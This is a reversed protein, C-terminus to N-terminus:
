DAAPGVIRIGDGGTHDNCGQCTDRTWTVNGGPQLTHSDEASLSLQGIKNFGFTNFAWSSGNWYTAPRGQFVTGLTTEVTFNWRGNAYNYWKISYVDATGTGALNGRTTGLYDPDLYPALDGEVAEEHIGTMAAVGSNVLLRPAKWGHTVGIHCNVCQASGDGTDQHHSSHANNSSGIGTTSNTPNPLNAATTGSTTGSAYNQLDHCKSCIVTMGSTYTAATTLDSRLRIGSPYLDVRKTLEALTYDAPYNDDMAWRATAGHPGRAGLTNSGSHCDNCGIVSDKNLNKMAHDTAQTSNRSWFVNVTPFDWQSQVADGESDLLTVGQSGDFRTKVGTNTEGLVNHQSAQGSGFEANVDTATYTTDDSRTITGATHCGPTSCSLIGTTQVHCDTCQDFDASHHASTLMSPNHPDTVTDLQTHCVKCDAVSWSSGGAPLTVGAAHCDACGPKDAFIGGNHINAVNLGHCGPSACSGLFAATHADQVTHDAPVAPAIVGPVLTNDTAIHCAACDATLPVGDTHCAFCKKVGGVIHIDYVNSAHCEAANGTACTNQATHASRTRHTTASHCQTTCNTTLTVADNHCVLCGKISPTVDSQAAAHTEVVSLGHCDSNSDAIACGNATPDVTHSTADSAHNDSSGPLGDHCVVDFCGEATAPLVLNPMDDNGHCDTCAGHIVSVDSTNAPLHCGLSGTVAINSSSCGAAIASTHSTAADPHIGQFTGQDHCDSDLCNFSPSAQASGHCLICGGSVDGEHITSLSAGSEGHCIASVCSQGDVMVAGAAPLEHVLRTADVWFFAWKPAEVNGAGDVSWYKLSHFDAEVTANEPVMVMSGDVAAAGDLEFYTHAVGSGGADTASLDIHHDGAGDYSGAANDTTVPPASDVAPATVTFYWKARSVYGRRDKVRAFVTHTGVSLANPVVYTMTRTKYTVFPSFTKAVPVGDLSMYFNSAGKIGYKDYVTVQLTPKTNTSSSGPAPAKSSFSAVAALAVSPVALALVLGATFVGLWAARSVRCRGKAM